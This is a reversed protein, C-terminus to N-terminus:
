LMAEVSDHDEQQLTVCALRMALDDLRAAALELGLSSQRVQLDLQRMMALLIDASDVDNIDIELAADFYVVFYGDKELRDKLLLLETSKGCGRHGAVLQKLHQVPMAARARNIRRAIMNVIHEDGRWPACDM